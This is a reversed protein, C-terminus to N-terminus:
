QAKEVGEAIERMAAIAEKISHDMHFISSSGGVLMTAGAAVMAPIHQFSVNGDVQIDIFRHGRADLLASVDRIKRLMAPILKQGAFGPNVTMITIMDLDDLIYDLNTIPTAPNLVISSKAGSDRIQQLVGQVHRTAEFHIAIYAAGSAAARDVYREPEEVMLHCDLPITTLQRVTDMITFDLAFNPVFRGDMIDIHLYDIGGETLARIDDELKQFNACVLSAEIKVPKAM